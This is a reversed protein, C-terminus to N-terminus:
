NQRNRIENWRRECENARDLRYQLMAPTINDPFIQTMFPRGEMNGFGTYTPPLDNLSNYYQSAAGWREAM